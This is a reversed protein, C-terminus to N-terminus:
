EFDELLSNLNDKGYVRIGGKLKESDTLPLFQVGIETVNELKENENEDLSYIAVVKDKEKVIYHENCIGDEQKYLTIENPSFQKIEWDNLEEALEEKNLNIYKNEITSTDKITHGCKDYYINKTLTANPSVKEEKANAIEINEFYEYEATCEDEIEEAKALEINSNDELTLLKYLYKGILFSFIIILVITLALLWKKM